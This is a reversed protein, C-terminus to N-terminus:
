RMPVDRDAPVIRGPLSLDGSAVDHIGTVCLLPAVGDVNVQLTATVADFAAGETSGAPVTITATHDDLIPSMGPSDLAIPLL